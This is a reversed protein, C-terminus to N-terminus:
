IKSVPASAAASRVAVRSVEVLFCGRVKAATHTGHVSWCTSSARGLRPGPTRGLPVHVLSRGRFGSLRREVPASLSKYDVLHELIGRVLHQELQQAWQCPCNREAFCDLQKEAVYQQWADGAGPQQQTM